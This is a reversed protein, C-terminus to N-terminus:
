RAQFEATLKEPTDFTKALELLPDDLEGERDKSPRRPLDAMSRLVKEVEEPVRSESEKGERITFFLTCIDSVLRFIEEQPQPYVVIGFKATGTEELGSDLTGVRVESQTTWGSGTDLAVKQKLGKAEEILLDTIFCIATTKGVAIKGLFALNHKLDLLFRAVWLLREEYQKAQQKLEPPNSPESIFKRLKSLAAEAMALEARYPHRYAPKGLNKLNPWESELFVRLDLVSPNGDMAALYKKVDEPDPKPDAEIRSVWSQDM